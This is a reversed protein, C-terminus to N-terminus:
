ARGARKLAKGAVEKKARSLCYGKVFNAGRKQRVGNVRVGPSPRNGAVAPESGTSEATYEYDGELM